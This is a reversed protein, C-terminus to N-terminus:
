LATTEWSMFEDLTKRTRQVAFALVVADDLFGLAPIWDPILDFPNVVYIIAGIIVLLTTMAVKRYDGRYYASILRLMTQFYAWTEKFQEKPLSAAKKAAEKVLARLRDPDNVYSRASKLAQSFETELRAQLSRDRAKKTKTAVPRKKRSRTKARAKKMIFM